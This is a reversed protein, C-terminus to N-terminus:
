GMFYMKKNALGYNVSFLGSNVPTKLMYLPAMTEASNIVIFKVFERNKSKSVQMKDSFKLKWFM